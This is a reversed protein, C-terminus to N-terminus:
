SFLEWYDYFVKKRCHLVVGVGFGPLEGDVETLHRDGDLQGLLLLGAGLRGPRGRGLCFGSTLCCTIAAASGTELQSAAFETSFVFLNAWGKRRDRPWIGRGKKTKRQYVSAPSTLAHTHAHSDQWASTMMVVTEVAVLVLAPTDASSLFTTMDELWGGPFDEFLLLWTVTTVLGAGADVEADWATLIFFVQVVHIVGSHLTPFM